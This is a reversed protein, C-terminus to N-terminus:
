KSIVELIDNDSQMGEATFFEHFFNVAAAGIQSEDELWEGDSKRVQHIM